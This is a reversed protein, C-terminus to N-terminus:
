LIGHLYHEEAQKEINGTDNLNSPVGTRKRIPELAKTVAADIMSQVDEATMPQPATAKAVAAEVAATIFEPTVEASKEVSSEAPTQQNGLAKAIAEAVIQEVEQKTVDSEEKATDTEPPDHQEADEFVKLFAGLSEYIGNLTERNKGSMKRGSKEVTPAASALEKTINDSTLIDTIITSFDSLCERITREDTEYVTKETRFDWHKLQDELASFADWFRSGKSRETYEDAVEGKELAELDVDEDSYSGRGGMSFGTIEGKEIQEWIASDTVEVTMLWTGKKIKEDGIEFDAKAIWSEVVKAGDFTQFSHQLDVSNGNKAFWHAAKTIEEATMFDGHADEVMPEYVVGTVYHSESDTKVIRSEMTFEAKGNEAKTILFQKKNAAKDVLSVFSIRADKIERAKGVFSNESSM